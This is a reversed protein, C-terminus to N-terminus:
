SDTGTPAVSAARPEGFALLWEDDTLWSDAPIEALRQIAIRFHHDPRNKGSLWGWVSPGAVGFMAGIAEQGLANAAAWERFLIQGRCTERLLM